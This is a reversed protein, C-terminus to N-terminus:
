KEDSKAQNKSRFPGNAGAALIEVGAALECLRQAAGGDRQGQGLAGTAGTGPWKSAIKPPASANKAGKSCM